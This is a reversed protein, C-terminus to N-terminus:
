NGKEQKLRIEFERALGSWAKGESDHERGPFWLYNKQDSSDYIIMRNDTAYKSSVFCVKAGDDSEFKQISFDQVNANDVMGCFHKIQNKEHDSSLLMISWGPVDPDQNRGDIILTVVRGDEFIHSSLQTPGYDCGVATLLLLAFTSKLSFPM